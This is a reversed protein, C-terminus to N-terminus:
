AGSRTAATVVRPMWGGSRWAVRLGAAAILEDLEALTYARRVSTIGDARTVRSRGVAVVSLATAVLPLLGRRLDNIVIGHRAVRGMERLVDVADAPDLHHVLLSCHAVDFARAPFPLARADAEVITVVNGAHRRAEALVSPNTDVATVRWSRRAFARAIDGLGAGVDIVSPTPSSALREIARVSAASGGPLRNLRALDRLNAAIETRTLDGVDLLEELDGRSALPLTRRVRELATLM